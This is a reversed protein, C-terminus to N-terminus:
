KMQPGSCIAVAGSTENKCGINGHKCNLTAKKCGTGQGGKKVPGKGFIYYAKNKLENCILEVNAM